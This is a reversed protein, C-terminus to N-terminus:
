VFIAKPLLIVGAQEAVAIQAILIALHEDRLYPSGEVTM